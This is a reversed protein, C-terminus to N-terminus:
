PLIWGTTNGSAGQLTLPPPHPLSRLSLIGMVCTCFGLESTGVRQLLPQTLAMKLKRSGKGKNEPVWLCSLLYLCPLPALRPGSLKMAETGESLRLGEAPCSLPCQSTAVTLKMEM